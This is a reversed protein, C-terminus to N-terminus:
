SFKMQLILIFWAILVLALIAFIWANQSHTICDTNEGDIGVIMEVEKLKSINCAFIEDSPNEPSNFQYVTLLNSDFTAFAGDNPYLNYKPASFLTLVRENHDAAFGTDKYQHSRIILSLNNESLFKATHESSWRVGLIRNSMSNSVMPDAWVLGSYETDWTDAVKSLRRIKQLDSIEPALGGHVVFVDNNLVHAVPLVDFFEIFRRFIKDHALPYKSHVEAKFGYVSCISLNEHNGKCILISGIDLIKFMLLTCFCEISHKGRDVIDGNFLYPNNSSPYGNLKFITLMDHFQGHVDGVINLKRSSFEGIETDALDENVQYDVVVPYDHFIASAEKLLTLISSQALVRNMNESWFRIWRFIDEETFPFPLTFVLNELSVHEPSM